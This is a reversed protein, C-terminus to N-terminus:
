HFGIAWKQNDGGWCPWQYINAGNATSVEAVDLCYGSYVSIIEIIPGGEATHGVVKLRWRQNAGWHCSWQHVNGGATRSWTSEDMCKGSYMNVILYVGDGIDKLFWRQNYGNHCQWQHINGGNQFSWTSEDACKTPTPDIVTHWSLLSVDWFNGTLYSGTPVTDTQRDPSTEKAFTRTTSMGGLAVLSFIVLIGLVRHISKM